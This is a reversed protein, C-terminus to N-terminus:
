FAHVLRITGLLNTAITREAVEQAGPDLIREPLMIGAMTVLVNLDPHKATVADRLQQISGADTVDFVEGEIGPHAAAIEDLLDQRRGAVIVQNGAEHLRAALARGIGSTGGAILITNGKIQM